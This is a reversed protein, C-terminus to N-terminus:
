RRELLTGIPLFLRFVFKEFWSLSSKSDGLRLEVSQGKKLAQSLWINGTFIHLHGIPVVNNQIGFDVSTKLVNTLKAEVAEPNQVFTEYDIFTIDDQPIDKLQHKIALTTALIILMYFPALIPMYLKNRKKARKLRSAYSQILSRKLFVVHMPLDSYRKLVDLRAFSKSADVVFDSRAEKALTVFFDTHRSVYDTIESTGFIKEAPVGAVLLIKKWVPRKRSDIPRLYQDPAFNLVKKGSAAKESLSSLLPKWLACNDIKEGCSCYKEHHYDNEAYNIEGGNIINNSHGLVSAFLTTGSYALGAVYILKPKHETSTEENLKNTM